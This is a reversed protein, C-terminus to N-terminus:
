GRAGLARRADTLAAQFREFAANAVRQASFGLRQPVVIMDDIEGAAEVLRGLLADREDLASLLVAVGELAATRRELWFVVDGENPLDPVGCSLLTDEIAKRIEQVRADPTM